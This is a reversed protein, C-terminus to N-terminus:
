RDWAAILWRLGRLSLDSLMGILGFVILVAFMTDYSRFRSARAVRVALGDDAALLEAVVLMLWGAALNIRAVDVIGPLSHPLVVRGVVRSRSAGLTAAARVLERPVARAVDAVMLINFFVTGIVILTIKPAEDIGLWLLMLPTLASAPIYRLFGIPSEFVGEAGPLVGMAVGVVIGILMSIGYGYLMRESSATLDDWLTGETQLERLAAWTDGPGPVVVGTQAGSTANAAVVWLVILGVLGVVGLGLRWGLPLEGRIRALKGPPRGRTGRPGRTGIRRGASARLGSEDAARLRRGASGDAGYAAGDGAGDIAGDAAGDAAGDTPGPTPTADAPVAGDAGDGAV